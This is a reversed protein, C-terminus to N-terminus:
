IEINKFKTKMQKLQKTKQKNNNEKRTPIPNTNFFEVQFILLKKIQKLLISM